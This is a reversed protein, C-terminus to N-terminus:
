VRIFCYNYIGSYPTEDFIEAHRKSKLEFSSDTIKKIIAETYDPRNADLEISLSKLREDLLTKHAGAIISDEIGDVDIKIHTPFPPGFAAIFGDISYGVM